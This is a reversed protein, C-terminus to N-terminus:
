FTQYKTFFNFKDTETLNSAAEVVFSTTFLLQDPVFPATTSFPGSIHVGTNSTGISASTYDFIAVGDVSIKLRMTRATADATTLSLASVIGGGTLSLLTKLTNATMAGSLSTKLGATQAQGASFMAVAGFGAVSFNNVLARPPRVLAGKFQQTNVTM